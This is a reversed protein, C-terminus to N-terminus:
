RARARALGCPCSSGLARSLGKHTHTHTVKPFARARVPAAGNNVCLRVEVIISWRADKCASEARSRRM